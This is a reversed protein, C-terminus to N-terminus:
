EGRKITDTLSNVQAKLSADLVKDGVTLVVGGLLSPDVEFTLALKQRTSKELKNVLDMRRKDDLPVATALKGRVVGEAKDVLRGFVAAIDGLLGLREKDALLLCFNRLTTDAKLDGLLETVVRSKETATIVPANFLRVLEPVSRTWEGLQAMIAGYKELTDGGKERGLAFLAQAYRGAVIDGNM